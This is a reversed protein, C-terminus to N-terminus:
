CWWFRGTYKSSDELWDRLVIKIDKNKLAVQVPTIKKRLNEETCLLHTVSADVIYSFTGGWYHVWRKVDEERWAPDNLDGAIAVVCGKFIPKESVKSM